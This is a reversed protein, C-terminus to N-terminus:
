IYKWSKRYILDKIRSYPENFMKALQKIYFCKTNALKLIKKAKEETLKVGYTNEGRHTRGKAKCDAINDQQSGEILHDPNVCARNDCKHLIFNNPFRKNIYYFTFRHARVMRGEYWFLGYGSYNKRGTWGWCGNELFAIKSKFRFELTDGKM